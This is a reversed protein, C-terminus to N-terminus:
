SDGSSGLAADIARSFPAAFPELLDNRGAEHARITLKLAALRVAQYAIREYLDIWNLDLVEDTEMKLPKAILSCFESIDTWDDSHKIGPLEAEVDFLLALVAREMPDEVPVHELQCRAELDRLEKMVEAFHQGISYQPSSFKEREQETSERGALAKAVEVLEDFPCGEFYERGSLRTGLEAAAAILLRETDRYGRHIPSFWYRAVTAGMKTADHTHSSLRQRPNNTQGVKTHGTSFEFVYVYGDPDLRKTRGPLEVSM